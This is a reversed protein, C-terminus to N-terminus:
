STAESFFISSLRFCNMGKTTEGKIKGEETPTLLLNWANKFGYNHTSVVTVDFRKDNTFIEIRRKAHISYGWTLFLISVPSEMYKSIEIVM